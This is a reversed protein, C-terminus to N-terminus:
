KRRVVPTGYLVPKVTWFLVPDHRPPLKELTPDYRHGHLIADDLRDTLSSMAPDHLLDHVSPPFQERRVAHTLVCAQDM